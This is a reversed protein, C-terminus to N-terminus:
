RGEHPSWREFHFPKTVVGVTLIGMECAAAAIIPARAQARAAVWAPPKLLVMNSGALCDRIEELTEEAAARGIEPGPALASVEETVQLGM